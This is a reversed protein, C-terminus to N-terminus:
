ARIQGGVLAREALAILPDIAAEGLGQGRQDPRVVQDPDVIVVQDGQGIFKPPQPHGIADAEEQM